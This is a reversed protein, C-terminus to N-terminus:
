QTYNIFGGWANGSDDFSEVSTVCTVRDLQTMNGWGKGIGREATNKSFNRRVRIKLLVM